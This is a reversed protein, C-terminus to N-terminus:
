GEDKGAYKRQHDRHRTRGDASWRQYASQATIGAAEGIARWTAGAQKAENALDANESVLEAITQTNSSIHGLIEAVHPGHVSEVEGSQSEKRELDTDIIEHIDLDPFHQDVAAAESKLRAVELEADEARGVAERLMKTMRDVAASVEALYADVQEPDYGRSQGVRFAPVPTLPTAAVRHAYAGWHFPSAVQCPVGPTVGSPTANTM